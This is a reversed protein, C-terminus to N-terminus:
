SGSVRRYYNRLYENLLFEILCKESFMCIYKMASAQTADTEDHQNPSYAPVRLELTM